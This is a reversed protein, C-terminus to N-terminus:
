VLSSVNKWGVPQCYYIREGIVVIDGVSLSRGAYGIPHRMNFVFFMEDLIEEHTKNGLTKGKYVTKYLSLDLKPLYEFPQFILNRNETNCPIQKIEYKEM